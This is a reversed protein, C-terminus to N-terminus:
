SPLSNICVLLQGDETEVFHIQSSEVWRYVARASVQALAAAEDITIMTLQDNCDACRGQAQHQARRIIWEEHIEITIETIKRSKM